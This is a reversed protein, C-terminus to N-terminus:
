HSAEGMSRALHELLNNAKRIDLFGEKSGAFPQRKRDGEDKGGKNTPNAMANMEKKQKSNWAFQPLCLAAPVGRAKDFDYEVWEGVVEALEGEHLRMLHFLLEQSDGHWDDWFAQATIPQGTGSTDPLRSFLPSSQALPQLPSVYANREFLLQRAGNEAEDPM